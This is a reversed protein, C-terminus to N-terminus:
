MQFVGCPCLDGERGRGMGGFAWWTDRHETQPVCKLTALNYCGVTVSLSTGRPTPDPQSGHVHISSGFSCAPTSALPPHIPSSYRGSDSRGQIARAGAADPGGSGANGGLPNGPSLDRGGAGQFSGVDATLAQSCYCHQTCGSTWAESCRGQPVGMQPGQLILRQHHQSSSIFM